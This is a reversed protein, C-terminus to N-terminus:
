TRSGSPGAAGQGPSAPPPNWPTPVAGSQLLAGAGGFPRTSLSHYGAATSAPPSRAVTPIQPALPPANSPVASSPNVVYTEPLAHPQLPAAPMAAPPPHSTGPREATPVPARPPQGAFISTGYSDIAPIDDTTLAESTLPPETALYYKNITSPDGPARRAMVGTTPHNELHQMELDPQPLRTSCIRDSLARLLDVDAPNEFGFHVYDEPLVDDMNSFRLVVEDLSLEFRHTLRVLQSYVLDCDRRLEITNLLTRSLVEPGLNMMPRLEELNQLFRVPSPIISCKHKSSNCEECPVNMGRSHCLKNLVICSHCKFPAQSYLAPVLGDQVFSTPVLQTAPLPQANLKVWSGPPCLLMEHLMDLRLTHPTEPVMPQAPPAYAPAPVPPPSPLPQPRYSSLQPDHKRKHEDSPVVVYPISMKPLPIRSSSAVPQAPSSQLAAVERRPHKPAPEEEEDDEDDQYAVVSENDVDPVSPGDDMEDDSAAFGGSMPAAVRPIIFGPLVAPIGYKRWIDKAQSSYVNVIDIVEHEKVHKPHAAISFQAARLAAYLFAVHEHLLAPKKHSYSQFHPLAERLITAVTKSPSAEIVDENFLPVLRRCADNDFFAWVAARPDSSKLTEGHFDDVVPAATSKSRPNKPIAKRARTGSAKPAQQKPAM